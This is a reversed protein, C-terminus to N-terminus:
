FTHEGDGQNPVSTRRNTPQPENEKSGIENEKRKEGNLLPLDTRRTQRPKSTNTQRPFTHHQTQQRPEEEPALTKSAQADSTASMDKPLVDKV